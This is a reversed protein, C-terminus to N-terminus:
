IKHMEDEFCLRWEPYPAANAPTHGGTRPRCVGLWKTPLVRPKASPKPQPRDRPVSGSREDGGTAIGDDLPDTVGPDLETFRAEDSV